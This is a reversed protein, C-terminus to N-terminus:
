FFVEPSTFFDNPNTVENIAVFADTTGTMLPEQINITGNGSANTTITNPGILPSCGAGSPTQILRVSYTTNPEANQLVVNAMLRGSGTTHIIAFGFPATLTPPIVTGFCDRNTKTLIVKQAGHDPAARAVQTSSGTVTAWVAGAMVLATVYRFPKCNLLTKMADRSEAAASDGGNSLRKRLMATFALEGNTCM